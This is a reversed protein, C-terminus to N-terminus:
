SATLIWKITPSGSVLIFLAKSINAHGELVIVDKDELLFGVAASPTLIGLVAAVALLALSCCVSDRLIPWWTLSLTERAFVACTGVVLLMNLAASGVVTGVGIDSGYMTGILSVFLEPASGGAAMFTAGAIAPSIEFRQVMVDLAPVLYEDCTIAIVLFMYLIGVVYLVVGGSQLEDMTFLESVPTEASPRRAMTLVEGVPLEALPEQATTLVNEVPLEAFPQLEGKAEESMARGGAELESHTWRSAVPLVVGYVTLLSAFSLM